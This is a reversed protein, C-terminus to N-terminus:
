RGGPSEASGSNSRTVSPERTTNLLVIARDNNATSLVVLCREQSSTATAYLHHIDIEERALAEAIRHLMGPKHPMEAVLVDAQRVQYGRTRLADAVRVDDDSLLRIVSEAGEVWATLALINVGKETILRFMSDLGGIESPIRVVSEKAGRVKLM